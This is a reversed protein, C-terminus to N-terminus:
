NSFLVVQCIQLRQLHKKIIIGKMRARSLSIGRLLFCRREYKKGRNSRRWGSGRLDGFMMRCVAYVREDWIMRAGGLCVSNSFWILAVSRVYWYVTQIQGVTRRERCIEAELDVIWSRTWAFRGKRIPSTKAFTRSRAHITRVYARLIGPGPRIERIVNDNYGTAHGNNVSRCGVRLFSASPPRKRSLDFGAPERDGPIIARPGDISRPWRQAGSRPASEGRRRVRWRQEGRGAEVRNRENSEVSRVPEFHYM